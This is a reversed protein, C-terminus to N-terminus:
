VIDDDETPHEGNGSAQTYEREPYDNFMGQYTGIRKLWEFWEGMTLSAKSNNCIGCCAVCNEKTYGITNDKRDVGNYNFHRDPLHKRKPSKWKLNPLDGCYYCKSGLLNFFDEKEIEFSYGRKLAARKYNRFIANKDALNDPLKLQEKAKFACTKCQKHKGSVMADVKALTTSGCDCQCIYKKRVSDYGTITLHNFKSGITYKCKTTM